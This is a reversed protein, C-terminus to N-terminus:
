EKIGNKKRPSLIKGVAPHRSANDLLIFINVTEPAFIELQWSAREGLYVNM